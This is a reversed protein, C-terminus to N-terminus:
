TWKTAKKILRPLKTWAERKCQQEHFFDLRRSFLPYKQLFEEKIISICDCDGFMPTDPQFKLTVVEKTVMDRLKAELCNLLYSHLMWVHLWAIVRYM